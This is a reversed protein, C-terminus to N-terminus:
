AFASDREFCRGGAPWTSGADTRKGTCLPLHSGALALIWREQHAVGVLPRGRRWVYNRDGASWIYATYGVLAGFVILYVLSWWSRASVAGLDFAALEGFGLAMVGLVVSGCLMQM